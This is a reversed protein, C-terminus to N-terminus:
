NKREQLIAFKVTFQAQKLPIADGRFSVLDGTALQWNCTYLESQMFSAKFQEFQLLFCSGTLAMETLLSVVTLAGLKPWM